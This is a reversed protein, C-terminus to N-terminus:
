VVKNQKRLVADRVQAEQDIVKKIVIDLAKLDQRINSKLKEVSELLVTISSVGYVKM